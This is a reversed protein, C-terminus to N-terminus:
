RRKMKGKAVAMRQQKTPKVGKPLVFEGAHLLAKVNKNGVAGGKEFPILDSIGGAIDGGIAAGKKGGILQGIGTGLLRSLGGFLGM